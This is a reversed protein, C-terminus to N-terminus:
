SPTSAGTSENVCIKHENLWELSQEAEEDVLALSNSSDVKVLEFAIDRITKQEGNIELPAELFEKGLKQHDLIWQLVGRAGASAASAAINYGSSDTSKLFDLGYRKELLALVEEEDGEAAQHALSQGKANVATKFYDSLAEHTILWEVTQVCGDFAAIHALTNAEEEEDREKLAEVGLEQKKLAWELVNLNDEEVADVLWDKNQTLDAPYLEYVLDLVSTLGHAAAYGAIYIDEELDIARYISSQSTELLLKILPLLQETRRNEEEDGIRPDSAGTVTEWNQILTRIVYLSFNKDWGKFEAVETLHEILENFNIGPVQSRMDFNQLHQVLRESCMDQVEVRPKLAEVDLERKNRAWELVNLNDEEVAGVLWDKNQTLEAPYLEYVLDLVSTLGRVAAYGAINIDKDESNGVKCISSKSTELLQKIVELLTTAREQQKEETIRHDTKGTILDWNEILTRVVSLSFEKDWGKFKAVVALYNALGGFNSNPLDPRTTFDNLHLLIRRQCREQESVMSKNAKVFCFAGLAWSAIGLIILNRASLGLVLSVAREGIIKPAYEAAKFANLKIAERAIVTLLSVGGGLTLTLGATGQLRGQTSYFQSIRMEIFGKILILGRLTDFILM